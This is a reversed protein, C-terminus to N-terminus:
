AEEREVAAYLYFGDDDTERTEAIWGYKRLGMVWFVVENTPKGIAEAIAPVTLPGNELAKLIPRRMSQEDRVIERVDRM